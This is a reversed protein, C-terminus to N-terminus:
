KEEGDTMQCSFPVEDTSGVGLIWDIREPTIRSRLVIMMGGRVVRGRSVSTVREPTIVSQFWYIQDIHPRTTSLIATSITIMPMIKPHQEQIYDVTAVLSYEVKFVGRYGGHEQSVPTHIASQEAAREYITKLAVLLSSSQHSSTAQKLRPAQRAGTSTSFGWFYIGTVDSQRGGQSKGTLLAIAIMSVAVSLSLLAYQSSKVIYEARARRM